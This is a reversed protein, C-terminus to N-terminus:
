PVMGEFEAADTEAQRLAAAYDRASHTWPFVLLAFDGKRSLTIEKMRLPFGSNCLLEKIHRRFLGDDPIIPATQRTLRAILVPHSEAEQLRAKYGYTAFAFRLNFLASTEGPMEPFEPHFVDKLDGDEDDWESTGVADAASSAPCETSYM